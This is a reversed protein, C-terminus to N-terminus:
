DPKSSYIKKKLAEVAQLLKNKIVLPADLNKDDVELANETEKTELSKESLKDGVEINEPVDNKVLKDGSDLEKM